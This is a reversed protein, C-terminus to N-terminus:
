RRTSINDEDEGRKSVSDIVEGRLRRPTRVGKGPLHLSQEPFLALPSIGIGTDGTLFQSRLLTSELATLHSTECEECYNVFIKHWNLLAWISKRVELAPSLDNLLRKGKPKHIFWVLCGFYM